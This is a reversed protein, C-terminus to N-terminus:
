LIGQFPLEAGLIQYNSPLRLQPMSRDAEIRL